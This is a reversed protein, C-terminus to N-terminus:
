SSRARKIALDAMAQTAIEQARRDLVMALLAADNAADVPDRTLATSLALRMWKSVGPGNLIQRIEEDSPV